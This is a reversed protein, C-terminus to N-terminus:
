RGATACTNIKEVVGVWMVCVPKGAYRSSEGRSSEVRNKKIKKDREKKKRRERERERRRLRREGENREGDHQGRLLDAEGLDGGPGEDGRQYIAM